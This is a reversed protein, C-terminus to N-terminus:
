SGNAGWGYKIDSIFNYGYSQALSEGNPDNINHEVNSYNIPLFGSNISSYIRKQKQTRQLQGQPAYIQANNPYYQMANASDNYGYNSGTSYSM